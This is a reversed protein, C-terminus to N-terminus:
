SVFGRSNEDYVVYSSTCAKSRIFLSATDYYRHSYVPAYVRTCDEASGRSRGVKLLPKQKNKKELMLRFVLNLHSQLESTHEESRDRTLRIPLATAVTTTARQSFSNSATRASAASFRFDQVSETRRGQQPSVACLRDM